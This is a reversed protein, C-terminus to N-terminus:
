KGKDNSSARLRSLLYKNVLVLVFLAILISFVVDSLYHVGLALRSWAALTIWAFVVLTVPTYYPRYREIYLPIFLVWLMVAATISHGSPFSSFRTGEGYAQPQYWVTFDQLNRLFLFRERSWITKMITTTPYLILVFVIFVMALVKFRSLEEPRVRCSLFYSVAIILPVTVLYYPLPRAVHPTAQLVFVLVSFFAGAACLILRTRRYTENRRYFFRGIILFSFLMAVSVPLYTLHAMHGAIVHDPAYLSVAIELDHITGSLLLHVLILAAIVVTKKFM